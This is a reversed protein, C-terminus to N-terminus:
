ADGGVASTPTGDDGDDVMPRAETGVALMEATIEPASTRLSQMRSRVVAVAMITLM